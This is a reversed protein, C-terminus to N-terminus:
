KDFYKLIFNKDRSHLFRNISLTQVHLLANLTWMNQLKTRITKTIFCWTKQSTVSCKKRRKPFVMNDELDRSNCIGSPKVNVGSHAGWVELPKLTITNTYTRLRWSVVWGRYQWGYHIHGQRKPLFEPGDQHSLRYENASGFVPPDCSRYCTYLQSLSLCLTSCYKM